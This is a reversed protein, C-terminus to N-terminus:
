TIGLKQHLYRMTFMSRLESYLTPPKGPISHIWLEDDRKESAIALGAQKMLDFWEGFDSDLQKKQESLFDVSPKWTKELATRLLGTPNKCQKKHQSEKVVNLADTVAEATTEIILKKLSASIKHGVVETVESELEPDLEIQEAKGLEPNSKSALPDISGKKNIGLVPHNPPNSFSEKTRELDTQQKNQDPKLTKNTSEALTDMQITDPHRLQDQRKTQNSLVQELRLYNPRYAVTQNYRHAFLRNTILLNHAKLRAIARQVTRVSCELIDAIKELPLVLWAEGDAEIKSNRTRYHILQCLTAATKGVVPILEKPTFLTEGLLKSNITM